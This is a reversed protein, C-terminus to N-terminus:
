HFVSAITLDNSYQKCHPQLNKRQAKEDRKETFQIRFQADTVPSSVTWVLVAFALSLPQM